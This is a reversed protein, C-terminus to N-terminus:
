LIEQTSVITLCQEFDKLTTNISSLENSLSNFPHLISMFLIPFGTFAFTLISPKPWIVEHDNPPKNTGFEVITHLSKFGKYIHYAKVDLVISKTYIHNIM